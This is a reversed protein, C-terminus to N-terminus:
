LGSRRRRRVMNPLEVRTGHRHPREEQEADDHRQSEPRQTAVGVHWVSLRQSALSRAPLCCRAVDLLKCATTHAGCVKRAGGRCVAM